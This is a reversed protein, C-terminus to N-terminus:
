LELSRKPNGMQSWVECAKRRMTLTFIVCETMSSTTNFNYKTKSLFCFWFTVTSRNVPFQNVFNLQVSNKKLIYYLKRQQSEKGKEECIQIGGWRSNIVFVMPSPVVIRQVVKSGHEWLCSAKFTEASFGRRM